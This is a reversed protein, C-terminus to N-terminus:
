SGQAPPQPDSSRHHTVDPRVARIYAVVRNDAGRATDDNSGADYLLTFDHGEVFIALGTGVDIAHVVFTGAAPAARATAPTTQAALGALPAVMATAAFAAFFAWKKM